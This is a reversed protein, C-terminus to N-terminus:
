YNCKKFLQIYVNVSLIQLKQSSILNVHFNIEAISIIKQSLMRM